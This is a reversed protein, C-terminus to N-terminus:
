AAAVKSMKLYIGDAPQLLFLPRKDPKYVKRTKECVEVKFKSLITVMGVELQKKAM